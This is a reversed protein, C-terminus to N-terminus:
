TSAIRLVGNMTCNNKTNKPKGASPMRMSSYTAATRAIVSLRPAYETSIMRAPIAATGFPCRSAAADSAIVRPSVKRCTTKGCAMALTNGASVLWITIM